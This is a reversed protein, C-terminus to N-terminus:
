QPSPYPFCIERKSLSFGQSTKHTYALHLYLLLKVTDLGPVDKYIYMGTIFLVVTSGGLQSLECGELASNSLTMIDSRLTM